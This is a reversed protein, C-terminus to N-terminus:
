CGAKGDTFCPELNGFSTGGEPAEDVVTTTVATWGFATGAPMGGSERLLVQREGILEGTEPDIIIEQRFGNAGEDRGIAVGTRGNLNAEDDLVEVGPIRAAAELLAARLEAPVVGSRLRDAIFVLAEGDPSPGAGLTVRYIHNLLRHPDHPLAAIASESVMSESGYFSGGPARVLEQEGRVQPVIDHALEESKPGFTQVVQGPERVWVWDESRDAPVYLTGDQSELWSVETGEADSTTGSYVADTEVKLYQDPGVFPDSTEVAFTAAQELVAAAAPSAGGRWGALGVLDAMVLTAVAGAAVAGGFTGIGWGRVRRHRRAARATAAADASADPNVAGEIAAFLAARGKTLAEGSPVEVGDSAGRLLQLEDM